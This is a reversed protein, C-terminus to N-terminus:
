FQLRSISVNEFAWPNYVVTCNFAYQHINSRNFRSPFLQRLATQVERHNAVQVMFSTARAAAQFATRVIVHNETTGRCTRAARIQSKSMVM